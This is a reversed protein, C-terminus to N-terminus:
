DTEPSKNYAYILYRNRGSQKAHYMATDAHKMLTFRDEGAQPYISIGISFTITFEHEALKYPAGMAAIIKEAVHAAQEATTLEPLVIVFEDGALRAVTDGERMCERLRLAVAQLLLDGVPHGLTDNIAKFKDLDLFLLAILQKNRRATALAQEIRDELLLRNPLGTL